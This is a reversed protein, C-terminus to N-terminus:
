NIKLMRSSHVSHKKLEKTQLRNVLDTITKPTISFEVGIMTGFSNAHVVRIVVGRVLYWEKTEADIITITCPTGIFEQSVMEGQVFVGAGVYSLNKCFGNHSELGQKLALNARYGCNVRFARRTNDPAKVEKSYFCYYTLSYKISEVNYTYTRDQVEDHYKLTVIFKRFVLRRGELEVPRTVVCYINTASSVQTGIVETHFSVPKRNIMVTVTVITGEPIQNITKNM